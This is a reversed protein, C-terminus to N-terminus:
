PGIKYRKTHLIHQNQALLPLLASNQCLVILEESFQLGLIPPPDVGLKPTVKVWGPYKLSQKAKLTWWSFSDNMVTLKSKAKEKVVVIMVFVLVGIM